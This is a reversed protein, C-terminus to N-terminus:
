HRICVRESVPIGNLQYRLLYLGDPLQAADIRNGSLEMEQAVRGDISVLMVRNKDPAVNMFLNVSAPNPYAHHLDAEDIDNLGATNEVMFVTACDSNNQPTLELMPYDANVPEISMCFEIGFGPVNISFAMPINVLLTSGPDMTYGTLPMYPGDPNSFAAVTDGFMTMYLRLTDATMLPWEGQNSIQLQIQFEEDIFLSDNTQPSVITLSYDVSRQAFLGSSWCTLFLVPVLLKM